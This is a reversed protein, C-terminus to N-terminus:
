LTCKQTKFNFYPCLFCNKIDLPEKLYEKNLLYKLNKRPIKTDCYFDMCYFDINFDSLQKYFNIEIFAIIFSNEVPLYLLNDKIYFLDNFFNNELLIINDSFKKLYDIFPKFPKNQLDYIKKCSIQLSKINLKSYNYNNSSIEKNKEKSKKLKKSSSQKKRPNNKKAEKLEQIEKLENFKKVKFNNETFNKNENTDSVLISQQFIDM